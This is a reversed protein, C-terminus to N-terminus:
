GSNGVTGIRDNVSVSGSSLIGRATDAKDAVIAARLDDLAVM